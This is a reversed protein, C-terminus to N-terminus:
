STIKIGKIELNIFWDYAERIAISIPQSKPLGLERKSKSTDYYFYYGAQYFQQPDFPLSRFPLHSLIRALWRLFGGPLTVQPARVDAISSIRSILETHSINEGGLIYREGRKGKEYAALHGQVVDDIHIINLGGAVSFPIKRQAVMTVISDERRNRDGAGIVHSPNVIVVDQGCAVAKQVQLEALYKACGYPWLNAPYNWTHTEDMQEAPLKHGSLLSPVGLAAVSSTHVVRGVGSKQAAVLVNRTGLVTVQHFPVQNTKGGMFAATHFVAQIHEMASELTEPRTIDGIAHEVHLKKLLDLNSGPRHFARVEWGHELLAKCLHFGLFGTSGTVLAKM